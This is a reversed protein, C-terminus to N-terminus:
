RQTCINKPETWIESATFSQPLTVRTADAM